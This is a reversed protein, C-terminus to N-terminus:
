WPGRVREVDREAFWWTEGLTTFRVPVEGEHPADCAIAEHPVGDITVRVIDDPQIPTDASTM